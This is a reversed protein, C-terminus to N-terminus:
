RSTEGRILMTALAAEASECEIMDFEGEDLLKATLSRVARRRRNLWDWQGKGQINPVMMLWNRLLATLGQPNARLRRAQRGELSGRPIPRGDRVRAAVTSMM